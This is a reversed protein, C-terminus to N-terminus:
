KAQVIDLNVGYANLEPMALVKAALEKGRALDMVKLVVYLSKDDGPALIVWSEPVGCVSAIAGQLRDMTTASSASTLQIPGGSRVGRDVVVPAPAIRAPRAPTAAAMVAPGSAPWTSSPSSNRAMMPAPTVSETRPELIGLRVLLRNDQAPPRAAITSIAQVGLSRARVQNKVCNCGAVLKLSRSIALRDELTAVEGRVLVEGQDQTSVTLSRSLQPCSHYIAQVADRYVMNLSRAPAPAAPVPAPQTRDVITMHSAERALKMALSRVSDNSVTGHIELCDGVQVATLQEHFTSPSALWAIEALIAGKAWAAQPDNATATPGSDAARAPHVVAVMHAAGAVLGAASLGAGSRRLLRVLGHLTM